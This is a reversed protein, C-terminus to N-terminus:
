LDPNTADEEPENQAEDSLLPDEIETAKAEGSGSFPAVAAPAPPGQSLDQIEKEEDAGPDRASYEEHFTAAVEAQEGPAGSVRAPGQIAKKLSDLFGMGPLM